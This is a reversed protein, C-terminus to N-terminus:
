TRLWARLLQLLAEIREERDGRLLISDATAHLVSFLLPAAAHAVVPCCSGAAIGMTLMEAIFGEALREKGILQRASPGHFVAEHLDGLGVVYDVFRLCEEEIASWPMGPVAAFRARVAEAYTFILRDRVAVLLDDWSPFYLYFTGKAAGAANTVDEVRAKDPGLERLVDIAADLLEARRDDPALRRRRPRGTTTRKKKIGPNNTSM